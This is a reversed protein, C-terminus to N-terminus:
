SFAFLPPPASRRFHTLDLREDERFVPVPKCFPPSQLLGLFLLRPSPSTEHGLGKRNMGIPRLRDLPFLATFYRDRFDFRPFFFPLRPLAGIERLEDLSYSAPFDRQRM